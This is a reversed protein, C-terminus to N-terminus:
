VKYKEKPVGERSTLPSLITLPPPPPPHTDPSHSAQLEKCDCLSISFNHCASCLPSPSSSSDDGPWGPTVCKEIEFCVLDGGLRPTAGHFGGTMHSKGTWRARILLEEGERGGPWRTSWSQGIMVLSPKDDGPSPPATM